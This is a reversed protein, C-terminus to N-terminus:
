VTMIKHKFKRCFMVVPIAIMAMAVTVTRFMVAAMAMIMPMLLGILFIMMSAINVQYTSMGPLVHM